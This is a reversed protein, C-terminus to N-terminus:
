KRGGRVKFMSYHVYVVDVDPGLIGAMKRARIRSNLAHIERIAELVADGIVKAAEEPAIVPRNDAEPGWGYEAALKAQREAAQRKREAKMKGLIADAESKKM